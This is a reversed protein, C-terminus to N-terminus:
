GSFVPWNQKVEMGNNRAVEASVAYSDEDHFARKLFLDRATKDM